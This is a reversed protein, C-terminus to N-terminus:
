RVLFTNPARVGLPTASTLWLSSLRLNNPPPKTFDRRQLFPFLIEQVWAEDSLKDGLGSKKRWFELLLRKRKAAKCLLGKGSWGLLVSILFSAIPSFAVRAYIRLEKNAAGLPQLPYTALFAVDDLGDFNLGGCSSAPAPSSSSTFASPADAKASASLFDAFSVEYVKGFVKLEAKVM